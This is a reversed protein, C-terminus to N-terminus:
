TYSEQEIENWVPLNRRKNPYDRYISKKVELPVDDWSNADFYDMMLMKIDNDVLFKDIHTHFRLNMPRNFVEHCENNLKRVREGDTNGKKRFGNEIMKPSHDKAWRFIFAGAGNTARLSFFSKIENLTHDIYQHAQTIDNLPVPVVYMLRGVTNGKPKQKGVAKRKYSSDIGHEKRRISIEHFTEMWPETQRKERKCKYKLWKMIVDVKAYWVPYTDGFIVLYLGMNTRNNPLAHSIYVDLSKSSTPSDGVLMSDLTEYVGDELLLDDEDQPDNPGAINKEIKGKGSVDDGEGTKMAKTPRELSEDNINEGVAVNGGGGSGGGSIGATGATAVASAAGMANGNTPATGLKPSGEGTVLNIVDDEMGSAALDNDVEAEADLGLLSDIEDEHSKLNSQDAEEQVVPEVAFLDDDRNQHSVWGIIKSSQVGSTVLKRVAQNERSVELDFLKTSKNSLLFTVFQAEDALFKLEIQEWNEDKTFRSENRFHVGCYFIWFKLIQVSLM